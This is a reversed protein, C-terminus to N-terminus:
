RSVAMGALEVQSATGKSTANARRHMQIGRSMRPVFHSEGRLRDFGLNVRSCLTCRTIGSSFRGPGLTNVLQKYFLRLTTRPVRYSSLIASVVDPWSVVATTRYRIYHTANCQKLILFVKSGVRTGRIPIM